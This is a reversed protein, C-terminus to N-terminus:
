IIVVDIIIFKRLLFKNPRGDKEMHFREFSEKNLQSERKRSTCILIFYLRLIHDPLSLRFLCVLFYQVLFYHMLQLVDPSYVYRQEVSSVM